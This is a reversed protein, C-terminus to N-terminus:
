DTKDTTKPAVGFVAERLDQMAISEFQQGLTGAYYNELVNKAADCIRQNRDNNPNTAPVPVAQLTVADLEPPTSGDCIVHSILQHQLHDTAARAILDADARSLILEGLPKSRNTWGLVPVRVMEQYTM